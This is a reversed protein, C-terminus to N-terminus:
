ILTCSMKSRKMPLDFAPIVFNAVAPLPSGRLCRLGTLVLDPFHGHRQEVLHVQIVTVKGLFTFSINMYIYRNYGIVVYDHSYFRM